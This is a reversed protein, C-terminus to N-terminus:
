YDHLYKLASKSNLLLNEHSYYLFYINWLFKLQLKDEMDYPLQFKVHIIFEFHLIQLNVSKPMTLDFKSERFVHMYM